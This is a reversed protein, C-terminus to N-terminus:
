EGLWKVVRVPQGADVAHGISISELWVTIGYNEYIDEVAEQNKTPVVTDTTGTSVYAAYDSADGQFLPVIEGNSNAQDLRNVADTKLVDATKEANSFDAFQSGFPGGQM